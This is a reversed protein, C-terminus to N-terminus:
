IRSSEPASNHPKATLKFYSGLAYLQLGSKQLTKKNPVWRLSVPRARDALVNPLVPERSRMQSSCPDGDPSKTERAHGLILDRASAPRGASGDAFAVYPRNDRASASANRSGSMRDSVRAGARATYPSPYGDSSMARL